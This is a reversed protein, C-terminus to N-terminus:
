MQRAAGELTPQGEQARRVARERVRVVAEGVRDAARRATERIAAVGNGAGPTSASTAGAQLGADSTAGPRQEEGFRRRLTMGVLDGAAAAVIVLAVAALLARLRRRRRPRIAEAFAEAADALRERAATSATSAQDAGEAVLHPLSESLATSVRDLADNLARKTTRTAKAGGSAAREAQKRAKKGVDDALRAPPRRRRLDLMAM